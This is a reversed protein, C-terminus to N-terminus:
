GAPAPLTITPSSVTNTPVTEPTPPPAPITTSEQASTQPPQSQTTITPITPQHGVGHTTASAITDTAHTGHNPATTVTPPAEALTTVTVPAHSAHDPQSSTTAPTEAPINQTNVANTATVAVTSHSDDHATAEVSDSSVMNTSTEPLSDAVGPALTSTIGAHHDEIAQIIAVEEPTRVPISIEGFGITSTSGEQAIESREEARNDETANDVVYLGVAIAATVGIIAGIDGRHNFWFNDIRDAISASNGRKEM